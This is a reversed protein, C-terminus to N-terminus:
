SGDKPKEAENELWVAKGDKWVVIPEGRKLHGEVAQRVAERIAEDVEADLNFRKAVTDRNKKNM